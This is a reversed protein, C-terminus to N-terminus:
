RPPSPPLTVDSGHASCRVRRALGHASCTVTLTKGPPSQVRQGERRSQDQAPNSPTAHSAKVWQGTTRASLNYRFSLWHAMSLVGDAHFDKEHDAALVARLMETHVANIHEALTDLVGERQDATFGEYDLTRRGHSM